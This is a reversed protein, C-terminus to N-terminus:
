YLKKNTIALTNGERKTRFEIPLLVSASTTIDISSAFHKDPWPTTQNEWKLKM